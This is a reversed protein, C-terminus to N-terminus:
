ATIEITGEAPDVKGDLCDAVVQAVRDPSLLTFGALQEKTFIGRIMDTDAAGVRLNFATVSPVENRISRALSELASKSAAYAFFGPFPDRAALSSINIVTGRGGQEKFIPLAASILLAPGFTNAGFVEELLGMTTAEIPLLPAVGANNILADIRGWKTRVQQVLLRVDSERSVDAPLIMSGEGNRGERMLTATEELSQAGRGVLAVNWGLFKLKLAIARGIGSGAGTVIATSIGVGM